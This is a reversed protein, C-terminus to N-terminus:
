RFANFVLPENLLLSLMHMWVIGGAIFFFVCCVFLVLCTLLSKFECQIVNKPTLSAMQVFDLFTVIFNGKPLCCNLVNFRNSISM